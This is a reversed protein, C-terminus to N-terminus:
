LCTRRWAPELISGTAWLLSLLTPSTRRKKTTHCSLLKSGDETLGIKGYLLRKSNFIAPKAPTLTGEVPKEKPDAESGVPAAEAKAEDREARHAQVFERIEGGSELEVNTPVELGSLSIQGGLWIEVLPLYKSENPGPQRLAKPHWGRELDEVEWDYGIGEDRGLRTAKEQGPHLVLELPTDELEAYQELFKSFAQRDGAFCFIDSGNCWYGYIRGGRNLLDALGAPWDRNQAVPVGQPHEERLSLARISWAVTVFVVALSIAKRVM